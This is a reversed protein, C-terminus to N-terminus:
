TTPVAPRPTELRDAIARAMAALRRRVPAAFAGTAPITPAGPLASWACGSGDPLPSLAAVLLPDM